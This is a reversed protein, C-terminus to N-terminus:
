EFGKSPVYDPSAFGYIMESDIPYSKKRVKDDSNGEVTYVYGNEYYDVIGVHDAVSDPEWDFFIYDGSKPTYNRGMWQNHAKFWDIGVKCSIFKPVQGDQTYGCQTACWSVFCACWEIRFNFGWWTWYPMGGEQGLQSLAKVVIEQNGDTAMVGTSYFFYVTGDIVHRFIYMEGKNAADKSFYYKENNITQWGTRMKGDDGFYYTKEDIVYKGTAMVCNKDFFYRENEITNWGTFAKGNDPNFYYTNKNITKWGFQMVGNDDFFYKIGNILQLGTKMKGDTGFYYLKEDITCIGLAMRGDPDFYYTAGDIVKWGTEMYGEENFYYSGDDTHVIELVARTGDHYFYSTVNEDPFYQLGTQLIGSTSFRYPYQGVYRKGTYKGTIRDTFYYNGQYEVWGFTILGTEYDYFYRRKNVTQWGRLVYGKPSIIYYDEGILVPTKKTDGFLIQGSENGYYMYNEYMIFGTCIIGESSFIYTNDEIEHKGSLKGLEKDNYYMNGLYKIWGYVPSHTEKDYYRRQSNVTQWGTRLAGNNAFIYYEGEIEQKGTLFKEGDFYFWKGDISNWGEAVDDTIEPCTVTVTTVTTVTTASTETTESSIGTNMESIDTTLLASESTLTETTVTESTTVATTVVPTTVAEESSQTEDASVAVSVAAFLLGSVAIGSLYKLIKKMFRNDSRTNNKEKIGM